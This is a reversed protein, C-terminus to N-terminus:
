DGQRAIFKSGLANLRAALQLIDSGHRERLTDLESESLGKFLDEELLGLLGKLVNLVASRKTAVTGNKLSPPVILSSLTAVPTPDLFAINYRQASDKKKRELEDKREKWAAFMIAEKDKSIGSKSHLVEYMFSVQTYGLINRAAEATIVGFGILEVFNRLTTSLREFEIIRYGNIDLLCKLRIEVDGVPHTPSSESMWCTVTSDNVGCFEAIPKRAEVLGKTRPPMKEHLRRALHAICEELHERFIEHRKIDKPM